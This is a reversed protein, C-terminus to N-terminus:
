NSPESKLYMGGHQSFETLENEKKTSCKQYWKWFPKGTKTRKCGNTQGDVDSVVRADVRSNQDTITHCGEASNKNRNNSSHDIM